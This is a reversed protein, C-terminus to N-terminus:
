RGITVKVTAPEARAEADAGVPVHVQVPVNTSAGPQLARCDAFAVVSNSSILELVDARGKIVVKVTTPKFKVDGNVGSRLMGVVAVNNWEKSVSETVINVNVTIEPPQIKSVWADRPPLVRVRKSFSEVRGDVDVPEVTVEQTNQLRRRSGIIRVSAPEYELDVKGILPKGITQPKAVLVEKEVERDFSIVVARPDVQVVRVGPAGEIDGRKITIRESGAPDSAKPKVIVAMEQQDLRRLDEQAGRFTVRVTKPQDLIAIGPEVVVKIPVDYPVEFSTAGRIAYFVLVALGIALIKLKWNNLVATKYKEYRSM